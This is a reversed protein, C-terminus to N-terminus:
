RHDSVPHRRADHRPRPRHRLTRIDFRTGALRREAWTITDLVSRATYARRNAGISETTLIGASRLTELGRSAATRSVGYIRSATQITLVPTGAPGVSYAFGCLGGALPPDDRVPRARARGPHAPRPCRQQSIDHPRGATSAGTRSAAPHLRGRFRPLLIRRAWNQAEGSVRSAGAFGPLLSATSRWYDM